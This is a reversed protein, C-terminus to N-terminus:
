WSPTGPDTGESVHQRTGRGQPCKRRRGRYSKNNFLCFFKLFPPGWMTEGDRGLRAPHRDPRQDCRAASVRGATPGTQVRGRGKQMEPVNKKKKGDAQPPRQLLSAPSPRQVGWAGRSPVARFAWLPPACATGPVSWSASSPSWRPRTSQRGRGAGAGVCPAAAPGDRM